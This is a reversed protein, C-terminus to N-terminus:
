LWDKRKQHEPVIRQLKIILLGDKLAVDTVEVDDSITWSRNFSRAALGRHVYTEGEEPEQLEKQGEVFLKNNETYVSVEKKEFGAIAVEVRYAVESEKIVNYPPYNAETQHLSGFRNFWEELGISYRDVDNLFREINNANYVKTLKTM